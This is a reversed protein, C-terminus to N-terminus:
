PPRGPRDPELPSAAPSLLSRTRAVISEPALPLPILLLGPRAHLEPDRAGVVLFREFPVGDHLWRRATRCVTANCGVIIVPRPAPGRAGVEDPALERVFRCEIGDARLLDVISRGLSPTEGVVVVEGPPM